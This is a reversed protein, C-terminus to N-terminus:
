RNFKFRKLPINKYGLVNFIRRYGIVIMEIGKRFSEYFLTMYLLLTMSWIIGINFWYTDITLGMFRKEAAFFHERYDFWFKDHRPLQYIPEYVRVLKNGVEIVENSRNEDNKVQHELAKNAYRRQMEDLDVGNKIMQALVKDKEKIAKDHIRRYKKDLLAIVDKIQKHTVPTFRDPRLRDLIAHYDHKFQSLDSELHSKVLALNAKVLPADREIHLHNICFDLKENLKPLYFNYKYQSNSIEQYQRFLPKHYANSKYQRVALAEYAWRSTFFDAIIPTVELNSILPNIKYFSVTTGSLVIQPILIIPILLYITVASDFTSSINLGLLIAFCAVSFLLVWQELMQEYLQLVVSGVLVFLAIQIAAIVFLVFIKSLLYSRLSLNLFSERKRIKRDRLIEESSIILGVFLSVLVSVFLYIPLDDNAFLSYEFDSISDLPISRLLFSISLGLLPAILMIIILYSSNALKSLIDRRTFIKFQRFRSPKKITSQIPQYKKNYEPSSYHEVFDQHWQDPTIKRQRTSNGFEDIIPTELITFIQEPNINGCEPCEVQESNVFELRRRFFYIAETPNGYYVPYGGKDLLLLKDFLKFIDSSPQHIVVFILKGKHALEKLLDMVNESDRSSLGSTPEDVYLISPERILELAINLRKRQGGSINTATLFNGIKIDRIESLGLEALMDMVLVNLENPKMYSFCLEANIYLNEYVSLGEILIDDQAVYGIIGEIAQPNHHISVGNVAVTGTYPKRNGNLVNLLTSKGAGSGGMIAVMKGSEENFTVNHLGLKGTPFRFSIDRVELVIQDGRTSYLFKDVLDTFYIPEIKKARLVSGQKLIYVVHPKVPQGNLSPELSGIYRLIFLNASIVHLVSIYEEAHEVEAIVKGAQDEELSINIVNKLSLQVPNKTTIFNFINQYEKYEINLFKAALVIKKVELMSVKNDAFALEIVRILIFIKQQFTLENNVKSCLDIISQHEDLKTEESAYQVFVDLYNQATNENFQQILFNKVLMKNQDTLGDDKVIIAFLRLLTDLLNVNM